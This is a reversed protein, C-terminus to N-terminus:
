AGGANVAAGLIAIEHNTPIVEFSSGQLTSMKVMEDLHVHLLGTEVYKAAPGTIYFKGPGDLHISSATAGALARHWLKVFQRCRDDGEAALAFVEDPELDLFRMRMARLGMIGEVHGVGGCGCYQEKPDMTVVCHGGEWIGELRPYRGYGIGRGLAWVRLLKDLQGRTAAIGAAMADADNLILVKADPLLEALADKLHLGKIQKLNPSEEIVGDRIIGAIGVGIAGIEGGNAAAVAADRICGAIHEAPVEQLFDTKNGAEPYTRIKG